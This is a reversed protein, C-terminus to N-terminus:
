ALLYDAGSYTIVRQVMPPAASLLLKRGQRKQYGYLLMALGVFASDIYTAASLELRIDKGSLVAKTFAARLPTINRQIWAGHLRIEYTKASDDLSVSASAIDATAPKHTRLFWVYPLVYTLLLKILALGDDFYRRWLGPEEKIRWTWELGNKQMWVPARRVSGAVFNVVAGLHSIVPVTIRARNREIWAQGKKAGLAVLLFDAKSANICASQYFLRHFVVHVLTVQLYITSIYLRNRNYEMFGNRSFWQLENTGYRM